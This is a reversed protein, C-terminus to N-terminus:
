GGDTERPTRRRQRALLLLTAALVLGVASLVIIGVADVAGEEEVSGGPPLVTMTVPWSVADGDAYLQDGRLVVPGPEAGAAELDVEFTTPRFAALTGGTWSAAAGDISDDWAADGGTDLIRVGAPVTLRFGTMAADRDNHVTLVIRQTSGVELFAPEPTLHATAPEASLLASGLAAAVLLAVRLAHRKAAPPAPIGSAMFRISMRLWVPATPQSKIPIRM